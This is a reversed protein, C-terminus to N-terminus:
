RPSCVQSRWKQTYSSQSLDSRQTLRIIANNDPEYQGVQDALMGGRFDLRLSSGDYAYSGGDGRNSTYRGGDLTITQTPTYRGSLFVGCGYTGAKPGGAATAAGGSEAAPDPTPAV